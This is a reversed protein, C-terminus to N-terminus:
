PRGGVGRPQRLRSRVEEVVRQHGARAEERSTWYWSAEGGDPLGTVDTAFPAPLGDPRSAHDIGDFATAVCVTRGPPTYRSGAWGSVLPPSALTRGGCDMWTTAIEVGGTYVAARIWRAWTNYDPAPVPTRGDDLLMWYHPRGNLDASGGSEASAECRGPHEGEPVAGPEGPPPDASAPHLNRPKMPVSYGRVMM